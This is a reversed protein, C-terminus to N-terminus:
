EEAGKALLEIVEDDELQPFALYWAGVAIYPEPVSLVEVADAARRLMACADRSATPAAVIVSDCGAARAALAAAHMTSGTAIGDDVIIATKGRLDLPARGARYLRERRELEKQERRAIPEIAAEDIGLYAMSDWDLVRVGGAAIAGIALEPNIPAGLKRVVLVDLPAGLRRAVEFAVPVGGRPLGLVVVDRNGYAPELAAGLREGAERRDRFIKPDRDGSSM